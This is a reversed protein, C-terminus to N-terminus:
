ALTLLDLFTVTPAPNRFAGGFPGSGARRQESGQEEMASGQGINKGMEGELAKKAASGARSEKENRPATSRPAPTRQSRRVM